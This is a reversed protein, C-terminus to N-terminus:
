KYKSAISPVRKPTEHSVGLLTHTSLNISTNQCSNLHTGSWLPLPANPPHCIIVCALTSQTNVKKMCTLVLEGREWLSQLVPFLWRKRGGRWLKVWGSWGNMGGARMNVMEEGKQRVSSNRREMGKFGILDCCGTNLRVNWSRIKKARDAM